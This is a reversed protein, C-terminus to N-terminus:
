MVPAYTQNFDQGPIQSYGKVILCAKYRLTGEANYKKAFIYGCKLVNKGPPLDELTWTGKEKLLDNEAQIAHEWHSWEDGNRAERLSDPASFANAMEEAVQLACVFHTEEPDASEELDPLAEPCSQQAPTHPKRPKYMPGENVHKYNTETRPHTSRKPLDAAPIAPTNMNPDPLDPLEEFRSNSPISPLLSLTQNGSNREGEIPADSSPPLELDIKKQM